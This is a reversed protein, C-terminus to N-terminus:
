LVVSSRGGSHLISRRLKCIGRHLVLRGTCVLRRTTSRLQRRCGATDSTGSERALDQCVRHGLTDRNRKKNLYAVSPVGTCSGNMKLSQEYEAFHSAARLITIDHHMHYPGHAHTHLQSPSTPPLILRSCHAVSDHVVPFSGDVHSKRSM